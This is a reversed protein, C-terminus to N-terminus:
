QASEQYKKEPTYMDVQSSSFQNPDNTNILTIKDEATNIRKEIEIKHNNQGIM